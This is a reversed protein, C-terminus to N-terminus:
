SNASVRHGRGASGQGGGDTRSSHGKGSVGRGDRRCRAPQRNRLPRPANGDCPGFHPGSTRTGIWFSSRRVFLVGCRRVDCTERGRRIESRTRTRDMTPLDAAFSGEADASSLACRQPTPFDNAERTRDRTVRADGASACIVDAVMEPVILSSVPPTSGPTSTTTLFRSVPRVRRRDGADEEDGRGQQHPVRCEAAHLARRRRAPQREDHRKKVTPRASRKAQPVPPCLEILRVTAHLDFEETRTRQFGTLEADIQYRGSALLPFEYYGVANTETRSSQNNTSSRAPLRRRM